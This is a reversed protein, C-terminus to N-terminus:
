KDTRATGFAGTFAGGENDETAFSFVGGAEIAQAGYFAGSLEGTWKADPDLDGATVTVEDTAFSADEIDAEFSALNSLMGDVEGKRFNATLSAVGSM